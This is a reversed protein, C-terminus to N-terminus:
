QERPGREQDLATVRGRIEQLERQMAAQLVLMDHTLRHDDYRDWSMNAMRTDVHGIGRHFSRMELREELFQDEDVSITATPTAMQSSIPSPVVLSSPSVPLSGSSWEYTSPAMEETSELEPCQQGEPVVEEAKRELGPREDDSRESEDDTDSSEDEGDEENDEDRLEDGESDVDFILESTRFASDLLTMAETVRASLVLSMTPQARVTMRATRRHFSARTAMLPVRSGLLQLEEAESPADELESETYTDVLQVQRVAVYPDDPLQVPVRSSQAGDVQTITESDVYALTSM